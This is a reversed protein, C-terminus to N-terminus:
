YMMVIKPEYKRTCNKQVNGQQGVETKQTKMPTPRQMSL